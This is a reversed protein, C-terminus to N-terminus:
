RASAVNYLQLVHDILQMKAARSSFLQSLQKVTEAIEIAERFRETQLAADLLLLQRHLELERASLPTLTKLRAFAGSYRHADIDKEAALLAYLKFKESTSDLASLEVQILSDKFDGSVVPSFISMDVGATLTSLRKVAAVDYGFSIHQKYIRQLLAAASDTQGSKSWLLANAVAFELAVPKEVRRILSDAERFAETFLSDSQPRKSRAARLLKTNVYGLAASAHKGETMSLARRYFAEADDHKWLSLAAAGRKLSVAVAHPCETQFISKREFRFRVTSELDPPVPIQTVVSKWEAILETPSKHYLSEFSAGGYLAKFKEIGYADLLYKVFSGMLTYSRGSLTTFFGFGGLLTEPSSPAFGLKFMAASFEDSTWDFSPTELAVAIGELLGVSFSAGFIADGFEGFLIHVLEHRIVHDFSSETIHITRTWPEAFETNDAGTFKKKTAADPYIFVQIPAVHKLDIIRALDAIELELRKKFSLKQADSASASMLWRGASDIPVLTKRIHRYSSTIGLDDSKLELGVVCIAALAPLVRLSTQGIRHRYTWFLLLAVLCLTEARFIFYREDIEIADDYLSGAFFGFIHNFFFIQPSFYVRLFVPLILVGLYLCAFWTKKRTTATSEIASALAVSFAAGVVPALVYFLLGELYTCNRVFLTNVLMVLPPVALALLITQIKRVADSLWYIGLVFPLLAGMVLSFEYGLSNLLPLQSLLVSLVASVGLTLLANRRALRSVVSMSM